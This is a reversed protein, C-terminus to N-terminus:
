PVIDLRQTYRQGVRLPGFDELDITLIRYIRLREAVAAVVRDVRPLPPAPSVHPSNLMLCSSVTATVSDPQSFRTGFHDPV